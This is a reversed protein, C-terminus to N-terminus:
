FSRRFRMIAETVQAVFHLFSQPTVSTPIALDHHAIQKYLTALPAMVDRFAPQIANLVASDGTRKHSHKEIAQELATIEQQEADIRRQLAESAEQHWGDREEQIQRNLDEIAAKHSSELADEEVQLQANQASVDHELVLLATSLQQKHLTLSKSHEALQEKLANTRERLGQTYAGLERIHRCRSSRGIWEEDMAQDFLELAAGSDSM